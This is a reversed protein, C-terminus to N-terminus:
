TSETRRVDFGLPAATVPRVSGGEPWTTIQLGHRRTLSVPELEIRALPAADTASVGVAAIARELRQSREDDLYERVVSQMLVTLRGPTTRLHKEVWEVGDDTVLRVPVREAIEIAGALLRLRQAQDGWVSSTVALRGKDTTVDIPDPDIGTRSAITVDVAPIPDIDAWFGELTVPSSADGWRQGCGSYAFHDLRLNLGGACGIEILDIPLRYRQLAGLIGLMLSASRGPENTQCGLAVLPRLEDEQAELVRHVEDWAESPDDSGGTAAFFRELSPADGTLVRRHVANLFRLAIARGRGPAIHDRLLRWSVGESEIDEVARMLLEAYLSSEMLLCARAQQAFQWVLQEVPRDVGPEPLAVLAEMRDVTGEEATREATRM